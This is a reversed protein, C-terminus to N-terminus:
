KAGADKLMKIVKKNGLRIAFELLTEDHCVANVDSGANILVQINKLRPGPTGIDALSLSNGIIAEYLPVTGLDDRVDVKGGSNILFKLVESNGRAAAAQVPTRGFQNKSNVNAGSKILLKVRKIDGEADLILSSDNNRQIDEKTSPNPIPKKGFGFLGM